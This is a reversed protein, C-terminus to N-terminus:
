ENVNTWWIKTGVMRVGVISRSYVYGLWVSESTDFYGVYMGLYVVVVVVMSAGSCGVCM